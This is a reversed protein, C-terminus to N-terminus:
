YLKTLRNIHDLNPDVFKDFNQDCKDDKPGCKHYNIIIQKM